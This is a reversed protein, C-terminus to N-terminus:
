IRAVADRLESIDKHVYINATTAYDSHGLIKQLVEPRVDAKAMMSAFTHRCSHPTKKEIGLRELTPYYNRNRFHDVRHTLGIRGEILLGDDPAADYLEQIFEAINAKIPIIRDRGAETKLGGVMYGETLHVNKKEISFLEGIRAGTYIMILIIQVTPDSSNKWLKAIEEASFIEKERAKEEPLKLFKAHNKTILDERIAWQCMQGFLQKLKNCSSRSRGKAAHADIVAQFQNLKISRFKLSHLEASNKYAGEYQEIGKKTLDRFHEAKWLDYVEAFTANYRDNIDQHKTRELADLAETKTAFTGIMVGGRCAIWPKKRREQLKYVTGTGNARKLAKRSPATQKKGCIHCFASGEALEAKCKICYPM